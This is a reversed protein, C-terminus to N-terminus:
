YYVYYGKACYFPLQYIDFSTLNSINRVCTNNQYTVVRLDAGLTPHMKTALTLLISDGIALGRLASDNVQQFRTSNYINFLQKYILVNCQCHM